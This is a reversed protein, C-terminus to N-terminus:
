QVNEKKIYYILHEDEPRPEDSIKWDVFGMKRYMRVARTNSAVAYLHVAELGKNECIEIFEKVLSTAIGQGWAEPLVAVVSLYARNEVVQDTYGAAMAIIRDKEWRLCLTGKDLLKQAFDKLNQKQSLPVPFTQDVSLLFREISSIGQNM